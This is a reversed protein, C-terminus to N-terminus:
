LGEEEVWSALEDVVEKEMGIRARSAPTMGLASYLTSIQRITDIRTKVDPHVMYTTGGNIPLATPQGKLSADLRDKEHLLQSLTLVALTDAEELHPATEWIKTWYKKAAAPLGRPPTYIKKM